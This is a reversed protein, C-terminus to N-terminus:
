IMCLLAAVKGSLVGDSRPWLARVLDADTENHRHKRSDHREAKHWVSVQACEGWVLRSPKSTV